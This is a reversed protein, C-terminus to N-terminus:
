LSLKPKREEKEAFNLYISMSKDYIILFKMLEELFINNLNKVHTEKKNLNKTNLLDFIYGTIFQLYLSMVKNIDFKANQNFNILRKYLIHFNEFYANISINKTKDRFENIAKILEHSELVQEKLYIIDKKSPKTESIALLRKKLTNQLNLKNIKKLSKFNIEEIKLPPVNDLLIGNSLNYVEQGHNLFRKTFINFADASVKLIPTTPVINLLNGKVYLITDKLSTHYKEDGDADKKRKEM